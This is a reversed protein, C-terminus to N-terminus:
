RRGRALTTPMRGLGPPMATWLVAQEADLAIGSDSRSVSGPKAALLRVLFLTM